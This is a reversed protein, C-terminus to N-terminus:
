CSWAVVKIMVNSSRQTKMQTERQKTYIFSLLIGNDEFCLIYVCETFSDIEEGYPVINIDVNDDDTKTVSVVRIM